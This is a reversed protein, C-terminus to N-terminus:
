FKTILFETRRNAQHEIESCSSKVTGECECGNILISEGYGKGVIRNKAIGKSIIYAASSKARKDSLSLNYAKSSRCDTHSGLEITMSPNQQMVKVIKDLEKAADARINSKALDFYIPNIQIIKAIDTGIELKQLEEKIQVITNVELRFNYKKEITIFSQKEYKITFEILDGIKKDKLFDIFTGSSDTEYNKSNQNSQDILIVKVHSLIDKTQADNVTCILKYKPNLGINLTNEGTKLNNILINEKYYKPLIVTTLIYEQSSNITTFNYEGKENTIISDLVIKNTDLLYLKVNPVIEKNSLDFLFGKLLSGILNKKSRFFYIDDKGEGGNRNSSFYGTKIDKNLSFGFDDYHTNIPYGLNKPDSFTNSIPTTFYLDLGGLGAKGDTSYFLTGDEHIYPFMERGESNIEPGLNKPESWKGNENDSYYLDTQGFGGPMDSVFYLRNGDKSVVGHGLSYEDSNYPFNEPENLKGDLGRKIIYLKLNIVSLSRGSKKKLLVNSKTLYITKEDNSISIPGDHFKGVVKKEMPKTSIFLLSDKKQSSYLDMFYSDDWSFTKNKVSTNRRNSAYIMENDNKNKLLIPSFESYESNVSKVNIIKYNTSDKKLDTYYSSNKKHNNYIINETRKKSILNLTKDAETYNENYKSCQFYNILDIENIENSFRTNLNKYATEANKFDYLKYYCEALSRTNNETPIKRKNLAEYYEVASAFSLEDYLKEAKKEFLSKNSKTNKVTVSNKIGNKNIAEQSKLLPNFNILIILIGIYKSM